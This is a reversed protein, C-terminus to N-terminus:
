RYGSVIDMLTSKGSGSPGIIGTLKSSVFDGNINKLIDKRESISIFSSNIVTKTGADNM